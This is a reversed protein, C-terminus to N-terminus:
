VHPVEPQEAAGEIEGRSQDDWEDRMCAFKYQHERKGAAFDARAQRESWGSRMVFLRPALLRSSKRKSAYEVNLRILAEDFAKAFAEGGHIPLDGEVLLDYRLADVDPILRFQVVDVGLVAEVTGVAASVQNMHLKEGTINAVDRGKRAFAVLVSEELRAGAEVIDNIDYRYLGNLGTLLVRYRGGTELEHALLPRDQSRGDDGDPVFEFFVDGLALSGFPSEDEFPITMRGETAILGLDRKPVDGFLEALRAANRGATGGLWCGILALGPWADRPRIYGHAREGVTLARARAPRPACASRLSRLAEEADAVGIFEPVDVGLTGDHIARLIDDTRTRAVDALRLLTTANPTAISSVNSALAFRMTLLYRVDPDKVLAVAYPVAFQGRILAPLRQYTVGSMSGCPIGAPTFGEVAPSSVALTTGNFCDGHDAVCRYM